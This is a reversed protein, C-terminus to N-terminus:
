VPPGHAYEGASTTSSGCSEVEPARRIPAYNSTTPKQALLRGVRRRGALESAACSSRSAQRRISGATSRPCVASKCRTIGKRDLRFFSDMWTVWVENRRRRRGARPAAGCVWVGRGAWCAEEEEARGSRCAGRGAGAAVASSRARTAADGNVSSPREVASTRATMSWSYVVGVGTCRSTIGGASAPRSTSAQAWVPVPLVAPKTSGMRCCSAASSLGRPAMRASTTVGVRSSAACIASLM